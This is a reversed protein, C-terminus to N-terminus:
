MKTMKTITNTGNGSLREDKTIRLIEEVTTLGQLLYRCGDDRLSKMSQEMALNRVKHASGGELILSRINETVIMM